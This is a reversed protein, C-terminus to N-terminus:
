QENYRVNSLKTHIKIKVDNNSQMLKGLIKVIALGSIADTFM